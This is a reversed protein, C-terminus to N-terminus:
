LIGDKLKERVELLESYINVIVQQKRIDGYIDFENLKSTKGILYNLKTVIQPCQLLHAQSEPFLGCSICWLDGHQGPFNLKVDLTRSRLKFLLQKQQTNFNPNNLYTAMKLQTCDLFKSKTHNKKLYNLNEIHKIKVKSKVFSKFREKSINKIEEDEMQIKLENKDNEIMRFWDGPNNCIKQAEYVRRILESDKRSIIHWLYM